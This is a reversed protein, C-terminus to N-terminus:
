SCRWNSALLVAFREAVEALKPASDIELALQGWARGNAEVDALVTHSHRTKVVGSSVFQGFLRFLEGGEIKLSYVGPFILAADVIERFGAAASNAETAIRGILCLLDAETPEALQQIPVASMKKLNREGMAIAELGIPPLLLLCGCFRFLFSILRSYRM